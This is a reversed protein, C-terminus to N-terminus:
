TASGPKPAVPDPSAPPPTEAPLKAKAEQSAKELAAIDEDIKKDIRELVEDLRKEWALIQEETAGSKRLRARSFAILFLVVKDVNNLIWKWPDPIFWGLMIGALWMIMPHANMWVQITDIM